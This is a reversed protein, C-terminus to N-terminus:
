RQITIRNRIGFTILKESHCRRQVQGQHIRHRPARAFEGKLADGPSTLYKPRGYIVRENRILPDDLSHLDQGGRLKPDL